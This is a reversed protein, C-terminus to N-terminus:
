APEGFLGVALGFAIVAAIYAVFIVVSWLRSKRNVVVSVAFVAMGLLVIIITLVDRTQASLASVM